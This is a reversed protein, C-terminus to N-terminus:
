CYFLVAASVLSLNIFMAHFLNSYSKLTVVPGLFRYLVM